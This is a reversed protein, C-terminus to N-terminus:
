RKVAAKDAFELMVIRKPEPGGVVLETPGGQTLYRGGYQPMVGTEYRSRDARAQVQSGVLAPEPFTRKPGTPGFPQYRGAM